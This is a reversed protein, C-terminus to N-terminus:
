NRSSVAAALDPFHGGDLDKLLANTLPTPLKRRKKVPTSASAAPVAAVPADADSAAGSTAGGTSELAADASNAADAPRSSSYSARGLRRRKTAHATVATVFSLALPQATSSESGEEQGKQQHMQKPKRLCISTQLAPVEITVMRTPVAERPSDDDDDDDDDDKTAHKSVGDGGKGIVDDQDAVWLGHLAVTWKNTGNGGKPSSGKSGSGSGSGNTASAPLAVVTAPAWRGQEDSSSSNEKTWCAVGNNGDHKDDSVTIRVEVVDGLGIMEGDVTNTSNSISSNSNSSNGAMEKRKGAGSSGSNNNAITTPIDNPSIVVVAPSSSSSSPSPSQQLDKHQTLPSTGKRARSSLRSKSPTFKDNPSSGSLSGSAGGSGSTGIGNNEQGQLMSDNDSGTVDAPAGSLLSLPLNRESGGLIYKM